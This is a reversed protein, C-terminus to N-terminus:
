QQGTRRFSITYIFSILLSIVIYIISTTYGMLWNGTDKANIYIFVSLFQPWSAGLIFPISFAIFLFLFNLTIASLLGYKTLPFYIRRVITWTKAGLNRGAEELSPDIMEFLGYIIMFAVPFRMWVSCMIIGIGLPDSILALPKDMLGFYEVILKKFIIGIYGSPFLLTFWMFAAILYPTFLPIRLIMSIGKTLKVDRFKFFLALFYGIATSLFTAVFTVEITFLLCQINPESPDFFTVYGNLTFEGTLGEAVETLGFSSLLAIVFPVFVMIIMFAILPSLFLVFIVRDRKM